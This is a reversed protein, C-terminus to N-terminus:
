ITGGLYNVALQAEQMRTVAKMRAQDELERLENYRRFDDEIPKVHSYAEVPRGHIAEFRREFRRLRRKVLQKELSLPLSHTGLGMLAEIGLDREMAQGLGFTPLLTVDCDESPAPNLKKKKKPPLAISTSKRALNKKKSEIEETSIENENENKSTSSPATSAELSFDSIDGAPQQVEEISSGLVLGEDLLMRSHLATSASLGNKEIEGTGGNTNITATLGLLKDMGASWKESGESNQDDNSGGGGGGRSSLSGGPSSSRSDSIGELSKKAPIILRLDSYLQYLHRIPEKEPRLPQRGNKRLFEIDFHRIEKKCKKKQEECEKLSLNLLEDVTFTSKVYSDRSLMKIEDRKKKAVKSISNKSVTNKQRQDVNLYCQQQQIRHRLNRDRVNGAQLSFNDLSFLRNQCNTDNSISVGGWFGSASSEMRAPGLGEGLGDAALQAAEALARRQVRARARARARTRSEKRRLKQEETIIIDGPRRTLLFESVKKIGKKKTSVSSTATTDGAVVSSSSFKSNSTLKRKRTRNRNQSLITTTESSNLLVANEKESNNKGDVSVTKKRGEIQKSSGSNKSTENGKRITSDLASINRPSNITEVSDNSRLGRGMASAHTLENKKDSKKQSNGLTEFSKKLCKSFSWNSLSLQMPNYRHGERPPNCKFEFKRSYYQVSSETADLYAMRMGAYKAHELALSMLVIGTKPESMKGVDHTAPKVAQLTAIYCVQYPKMKRSNSFNSSSSTGSNSNGLTTAKSQTFTKRTVVAVDNKKSMKSVRTSTRRRGNAKSNVKSVKKSKRRSKSRAVRPGNSDSSPSPSPPQQVIGRTSDAQRRAYKATTDSSKQIGPNHITEVGNVDITKWITDTGRALRGIEALIPMKVNDPVTSTEDGPEDSLDGTRFDYSLRTMRCNDKQGNVYSLLYCHQRETDYGRVIRIKDGDTDIFTLEDASAIWPNPGKDEGRKSSANFWTFYYNIFGVIIGDVEAVLFYENKAVLTGGGVVISDSFTFKGELFDEARTFAPNVRNATALSKADQLTPGAFRFTTNPCIQNMKVCAIIDRDVYRSFSKFIDTFQLESYGHFHRFDDADNSLSRHSQQTRNSGFKAGDMLAGNSSRSSRLATADAHSTLLPTPGKPAGPAM